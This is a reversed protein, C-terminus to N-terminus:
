SGNGAVRAKLRVFEERFAEKSRPAFGAVIMRIPGKRVYIRRYYTFFNVYLGLLILAFGTWVIWIGPDKAVELGTYFGETIDELKVDVGNFNKERMRDVNKLFWSTKPEGKDLYALLVGPGYNHVQNEFRVVMLLLGGKRFTDREKLIVNEGGINFLFSAARGYSSQYVHIGKYSLPDNVRVEKEMLTKGNEIVEVTSVYDKPEGGPYFSVKFDKCKLSFDLTREVPNEGRLIIKNKSEGKTLVLYGKYGFLTGVFGGLLILIISSHIIFVGYRSLGGREYVTGEATNLVRRYSKGIGRELEDGRELPVDFTMEMDSLSKEDPLESIKRSTKTFRSFRQLTCLILNILFLVILSYFWTCHYTDDLGFFKVLRVTSESYVSLYEEVPARQKIVTGLVSGAAILSLLLVTFKVSAFFSYIEGLIGRSPASDAREPRSKTASM